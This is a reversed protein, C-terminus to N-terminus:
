GARAVKREATNKAIIALQKVSLKVGEATQKEYNQGGNFAGGAVAFSSFTGTPGMTKAQELTNDVETAKEQANAFDARAKDEARKAVDADIAGVQQLKAIRALEMTLKEGPTRLAEALAQGEQKLNDMGAQLNEQARVRADMADDRSLVGAQEQQQIIAMMQKFADAPNVGQEAMRGQFREQAQQRAQDARDADLKGAQEDQNIQKLTRDFVQDPAVGQKELQDAALNVANLRFDQMAEQAAKIEELAKKKAKLAEVDKIQQETLGEDALRKREAAQEGKELALIEMEIGKVLDFYSASIGNLGAMQKEFEGPTILGKDLQEKLATKKDQTEITKVENDIRSQQMARRQKAEGATIQGSKEMLDIKDLEKQGEEKVIAIQKQSATPEGIKAREAAAEKATLLGQRELENIRELSEIRKQDASKQLERIAEAEKEAANRAKTEATQDKLAKLAAQSSKVQRSVDFTTASGILEGIANGIERSAQFPNMIAKGIAKMVKWTFDLLSSFFRKTAAWAEGWLWKFTELTAEVGVWFGAQIGLWLAQVATSYDGSGLANKIADFTDNVVTVLQGFTNTAIGWAKAFDSGAIAAYAAAATIGAMAVTVAGIVAIIPLLPGTIVAWAASWAASAVFAAGAWASGLLGAAAAGLAAPSSAAALVATFATWAASALAAAGSWAASVIAADIAQKIALAQTLLGFAGWAASSLLAWAVGAAGSTAFAAQLSLFASTVFTASAAYAASIATALPVLVGAASAWAATVTGASATWAAAAGVALAAMVTDLGFWAVAITAAAAVWPSVIATVTAVAILGQMAVGIAGVLGTWALGIAASAAAWGTRIIAATIRSKITLVAFATTLGLWATSAIGAAVQSAVGLVSMGAAAVRLAVGTAVMSAGVGAAAITVVGLAKVLDRNNEAFDRVAHIGGVAVSILDAIDQVLVDGLATSANTVAAWLAKMQNSFSSSTRIADGQATATARMIINLRAQAKAADTATKPDLSMNLLEQKVATENVIAGYKKMPESEGTMAAMLDRFVDATNMNNFSGLDVAFASLTKSMEGAESPVLGMPVLLAQMSALMSLMGEESVGVARSTSMAWANVEKASDGFVTNFKSFTEQMRSAAALPATLLGASSATIAAGIAMTKQSFAALDREAAAIGERVRNAVSLRVVAEGAVIKAATM